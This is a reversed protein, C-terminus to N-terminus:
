QSVGVEEVVRPKTAEQLVVVDPHAARIVETLATERGSGGHRINYSLIRLTM